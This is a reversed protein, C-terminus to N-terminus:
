HVTECANELYRHVTRVSVELQKSIEEITWGKARYAKAKAPKGKFTGPKRGLYAGRSKAAEIGIAQREQRTEQEMQAIGLLVAAIMKGVTGHFDIQQTVSVVRLKRECWDCLVNLGDQLQRSFRDLRWVVVTKVEGMFIDAQLKDFAPRDFSDGSEGKDVYWRIKSSDIGNGTLWREIESRQGAENQGVTSVRVYCGFM